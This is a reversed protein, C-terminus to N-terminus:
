SNPIIWDSAFLHNCSKRGTKSRANSCSSTTGTRRAVSTAAGSGGAASSAGKKILIPCFTSDLSGYIRIFLVFIITTLLFAMRNLIDEQNILRTHDPKHTCGIRPLPVVFRKDIVFLLRQRCATHQILIHAKLTERYVIYRDLLRCLFRTTALKCRFVLFFIAPNGALFHANLVRNPAHLAAANDLVFEAVPLVGDAVHQHGDGGPQVIPSQPITRPM